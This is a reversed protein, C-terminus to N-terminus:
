TFVEQNQKALMLENASVPLCLAHSVPQIMDGDSHVNHTGFLPQQYDKFILLM